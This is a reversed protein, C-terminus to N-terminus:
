QTKKEERELQRKLIAIESMLRRQKELCVELQLHYACLEEAQQQLGIEQIENLTHDVGYNAIEEEIKAPTGPDNPDLMEPKGIALWAYGYRTVRAIKQLDPSPPRAKAEEWSRYTSRNIGLEDAFAGQLQGGRHLLRVRILREPLSESPIICDKESPIM